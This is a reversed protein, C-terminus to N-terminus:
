KTKTFIRDIEVPRLYRIKKATSKSNRRDGYVLLKISGNKTKGLVDCKMFYDKRSSRNYQHTCKLYTQM